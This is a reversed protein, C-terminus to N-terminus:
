AVGEGGGLAIPEQESSGDTIGAPAAETGLGQERGEGVTRDQHGEEPSDTVTLGPAM